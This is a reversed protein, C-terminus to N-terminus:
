SFLETLLWVKKVLFCLKKLKSRPIQILCRTGNILGSVKKLLNENLSLVTTKHDHVVSFLSTDDTFLKPVSMLWKPLDINALFNSTRTYFVRPFELRVTAGIQPNEMSFVEQFSLCWKSDSLFSQMPRYYKGCVGLCKLKYRTPWFFFM